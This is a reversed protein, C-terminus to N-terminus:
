FNKTFERFKDIDFVGEFNKMINEVHTGHWYIRKCNPCIKFDKVTLFVREPIRDRVEEAKVDALLTNCEVCRTFPRMEQILSYRREVEKLQDRWNNSVILFSEGPWKQWKERSRTLLIRDNNNRYEDFPQADFGLLRLKKMLKGITNDCLFRKM